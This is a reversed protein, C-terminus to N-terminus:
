KLGERQTSLTTQSTEDRVFAGNTHSTENKIRQTVMSQASFVICSASVEPTLIGIDLAHVDNLNSSTHPGLVCLLHCGMLHTKPDVLDDFQGNVVCHLVKKPRHKM